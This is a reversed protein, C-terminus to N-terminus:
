IKIHRKGAFIGNGDTISLCLITGRALASFRANQGTTIVSIDFGQPATFLVCGKIENDRRSRFVKCGNLSVERVVECDFM